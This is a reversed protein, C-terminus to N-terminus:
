AEVREGDLVRDVDDPHVVWAKGRWKKPCGTREVWKRASEDAHATQFGLYSGLRSYNM